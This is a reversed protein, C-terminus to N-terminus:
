LGSQLTSGERALLRALVPRTREAFDDPYDHGLGDVVEVTVDIGEARMLDVAGQARETGDDDAGLLVHGNIGRGAAESLTARDFRGVDIAPCVALFAVPVLDGPRTAWQMAQRGGASFGGVVVPVRADPLVIESVDGFATTADLWTRHTPTTRHWSTPALLVVGDAALPRWTPATRPGDSNAGHLVVLVARATELSGVVVTELTSRGTEQCRRDAAEVLDAFGDLSALAALDDDGEVVHRAWWGGGDYAAWLEALAEEPHGGRALLCAALHATDSRHAALGGAESRVLAVGDAYRESAYLPLVRDLLDAYRAHDGPPVADTTVGTVRGPLALATTDKDLRAAHSV